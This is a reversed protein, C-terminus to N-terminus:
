NKIKRTIEPFLLALSQRHTSYKYIWNIFVILRNKFGILLFLHLTMWILWAFFGHFSLKPKELDVVAKNRGVTAMSGKNKYVYPKITKSNALRLFNNALNISQDIAVSALQPFGKPHEESEIFAVDGLAFINHLDIVRNCNDTKIQNSKSIYNPNIGNPINGKVGAAWIVFTSDIVTADQLLIQTGNYEKVFTNLMVTVGLKQLYEKAKQSSAESMASLLKSTGELLYIKMEDFNLEPYELPLSDTKMEALAGSLEVGTPGGGVIVVSLLIKTKSNNATIADEFHQLLTNRIQLAEFTSKMSFVKQELVANGFYNTKAGTAIVLYDYKVNGSLTEVEKTKININSVTAVRIKVNKSKEFINRLPFSINSADLNAMAVQYFLPQFQHYNNKDILTITYYPNNNLRRALKLGAFGAGIIVIHNTSSKSYGKAMAQLSDNYEQLDSTTIEPKVDSPITITMEEEFKSLEPYNEQINATTELIEKNLEGKTKM